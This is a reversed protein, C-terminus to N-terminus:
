HKSLTTPPDTCTSAAVSSQSCPTPSVEPSKAPPLATSSDAATASQRTARLRKALKRLGRAITMGRKQSFYLESM